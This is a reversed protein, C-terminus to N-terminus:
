LSDLLAEVDPDASCRCNIQSGPIGESPPNSWEFTRGDLEAHEPRVREDASTRWTYKTLGLDKQRAENLSGYLKGVQDRAILAARSESVAFREEIAEAITEWREGASIGRLAVKQVQALAEEPISKILGVNEATFLEIREALRPDRIPVDVGVAARLQRGLQAKQWDSTRRGIMKALSGLNSKAFAGNTLSAKVLGVDDDIADTRGTVDRAHEAYRHLKPILDRHAAIRMAHVLDLLIRTYATEIAKPPLAKPMPRRRPKKGTVMQVYRRRAQVLHQM